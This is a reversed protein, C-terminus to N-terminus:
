ILRINNSAIIFLCYFNKLLYDYNLKIYIYILYGTASSMTKKKM